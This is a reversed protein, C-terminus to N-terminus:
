DGMNVAGYPRYTHRIVVLLPFYRKLSIVTAVIAAVALTVKSSQIIYGAVNTTTRQLKLVPKVDKAIANIKEGHSDLTNEIKDFREGFEILAVSLPKDIVDRDAIMRKDIHDLIIELEKKTM